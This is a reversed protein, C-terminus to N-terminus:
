YGSTILLCPAGKRGAVDSNIYRKERVKKLEAWSSYLSRIRPTDSNFAVVKAGRQRARRLAEALRKQDQSTFGGHTYAAFTQDYPPDAVITDGRKAEAIIEWFDTARFQAHRFALGIARLADLSPMAVKTRRGWPVNFQGKANVRYLGNYGCKNLYIFRAAQTELRTPLSDRVFYYSREDTGLVGLHRHVQVAEVRVAAYMTILENNLDNLLMYKFREAFHLPIAAGGLFADILRRGHMYRDVLPIAWRKGGAWKIIPQIM